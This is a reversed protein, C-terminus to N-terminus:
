HSRTKYLCACWPLRTRAAFRLLPEIREVGPVLSSKVAVSFSGRQSPGFGDSEDALPMHAILDIGAHPFMEVFFGEDLEGQGHDRDVSPIADADGKTDGSAGM